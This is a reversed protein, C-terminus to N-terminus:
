RRSEGYTVHLLRNGKSRNESRTLVQLNSLVHLGSVTAGNLPLVHDVEFSKFIRCFDYMGQVEALEPQSMILESHRIRGTRRRTRALEKASNRAYNARRAALHQEKNEVQWRNIKKAADPNATRYARIKANYEEKNGDRKQKRAASIVEKNAAYYARKKAVIEERHAERYKSQAEYM